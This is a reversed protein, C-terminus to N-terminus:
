IIYIGHGRGATLTTWQRAWVKSIGGIESNRKEDEGFVLM